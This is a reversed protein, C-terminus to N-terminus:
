LPSFTDKRCLGIDLYDSDPLANKQHIQPDFKEEERYKTIIIFGVPISDYLTKPIQMWIPRFTRKMALIYGFGLRKLQLANAKPIIKEFESKTM